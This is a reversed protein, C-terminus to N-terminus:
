RKCFNQGVCLASFYVKPYPATPLSGMTQLVKLGIGNGAMDRVSTIGFKFMNKLSVEGFSHNEAVNTVLHFHGEILGPILVKGTLDKIETNDPIEETGSAFINEIEGTDKNVIVTQNEQITEAIGDILDVHTYAALNKDSNKSESKSCRVITSLSVAVCLCICLILENKNM